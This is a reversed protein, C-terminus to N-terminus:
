LETKLRTPSIRSDVRLIDETRKMANGEHRDNYFALAAQLQNMGAIVCKGFLIFHNERAAFTRREKMQERRGTELRGRGKRPSFSFLEVM